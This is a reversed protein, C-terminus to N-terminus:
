LKEDDIACSGAEFEVRRNYRHDKTKKYMESPQNEGKHLVKFRNETLGFNMFIKKIAEARKASLKMNYDEKGTADAHGTIHLCINPHEKLKIAIEFAKKMEKDPIQHSNKEFYIIPYERSEVDIPIDELSLKSVYLSEDQVGVPKLLIKHMPQYEEDDVTIKVYETNNTCEIKLFGNGDSRKKLITKDFKGDNAKKYMTIIFDASIPKNTGKELFKIHYGIEPIAFVKPSLMITYIDTNGQGDKRDSCFFVVNGIETITIDNFESNVPTGLNIPEGFVGDSFSVFYIDWLGHGGPRNSSFYFGSKRNSEMLGFDSYDSNIPAPMLQV